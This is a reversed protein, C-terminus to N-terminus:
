PYIFVKPFSIAYVVTTQLKISFVTKVIKKFNYNYINRM